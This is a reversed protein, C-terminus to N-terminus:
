ADASAAAAKIEEESPTRHVVQLVEIEGAEVVFYDGLTTPDSDEAAGPARYTPQTLVISRHPHPDPDNDFSYMTGTVWAGSKLVLTVEVIVQEEPDLLSKWASTDRPIASKWLWKLGHDHMWKTGFLYGLATAAGAALVVIAVSPLLHDRAWSLDGAFLQDLHSRVWGSCSAVLALVLAVVADCIASVFVLAATERLVSRKAAPQHGERAFIFAVGPFLAFVYFAVGLM